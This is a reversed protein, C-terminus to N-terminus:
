RYRDPSRENVLPLIGSSVFATFAFALGGSILPTFLRWLIRDHHWTGRAVSHYLWKLDFLSGGLLGGLAGYAYRKFTAYMVGRDLFGRFAGNWVLFILVPIAVLLATVYFTELAIQIWSRRTWRSKSDWRERGDTTGATSAFGGEPAPIPGGEMAPLADGEAAPSPGPELGPPPIM